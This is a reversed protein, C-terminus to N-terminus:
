TATGVTHPILDDAGSKKAQNSKNHTFTNAM